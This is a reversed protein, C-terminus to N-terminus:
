WMFIPYSEADHGDDDDVAVAPAPAAANNNRSNNQILKKPKPIPKEPNHDITQHLLMGLIGGRQSIARQLRNEEQMLEDMQILCRYRELDIKARRLREWGFHKTCKNHPISCFEGTEIFVDRVLPAGCVTDAPLKPEKYHECVVRLRKCYAKAQSDYADCFLPTGIIQEKQNACFVTNGEMKQFCKEMHKLAHRMSVEASCTVCIISEMQEVQETDQDVASLTQEKDRGTKRGQARSILETLKQHEMELEVLRNHVTCQERSIEELRSKDLLTAMCDPLKSLGYLSNNDKTLLDPYWTKCSEPLLTELRKIALKRGCENSCYKTDPQRPKKLENPISSEFSKQPNKNNDDTTKVKERRRRNVKRSSTHATTRASGGGGGGGQYRSSNKPRGASKSSTKNSSATVRTSASSSNYHSTRSLSGGPRRQSRDGGHSSSIKRHSSHSSTTTKRSSHTIHTRSTRSSRKKDHDSAVWDEDEEDDDDDDIDDEVDVDDDDSDLDSLDDVDNDELNAYNRHGNPISRNSSLWDYSFNSEKNNKTNFESRQGNRHKYSMLSDRSNNKTLGKIDRTTTTSDDWGRSFDTRSSSNKEFTYRQSM